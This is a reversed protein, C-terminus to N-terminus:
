RTTQANLDLPARYYSATCVGRANCRRQVLSVGPTCRGISPRQVNDGWQCFRANCATARDNCARQVSKGLQQLPPM